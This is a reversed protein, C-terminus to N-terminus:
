RQVEKVSHAPSFWNKKAAFFSVTLIETERMRSRRQRRISAEKHMYGSTRRWELGFLCTKTNLHTTKRNETNFPVTARRTFQRVRHQHNEAAVDQRETDHDEAVDPDTLFGAGHQTAQVGLLREAHVVGHQGVFDAALQFNGEYTTLVKKEKRRNCQTEDRPRSKTYNLVLLGLNRFMCWSIPSRKVAVVVSFFIIKLWM